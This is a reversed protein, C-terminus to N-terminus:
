QRQPESTQRFYAAPTLGTERRFAAVFASATEYGVEHGVAAVKGGNALRTLAAQLRALTRSRGFTVKTERLFSRALAWLWAFPQFRM